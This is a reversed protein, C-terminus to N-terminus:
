VALLRQKISFSNRQDPHFFDENTPTPRCPLKDKCVSLQRCGDRIFFHGAMM